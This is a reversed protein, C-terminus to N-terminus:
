PCLVGQLLCKRHHVCGLVCYAIIRRRHFRPMHEGPRLFVVDLLRRGPAAHVQPVAVLAQDHGHAQFFLQFKVIHEELDTELLDFHAEGRGTLGLIFEQAFQDVLFADGVIHRHLYQGLAAVMDDALSELSDPARRPGDDVKVVGGAHGLPLLHEFLGFLLDLLDGHVAGSQDLLEALFVLAVEQELVAGFTEGAGLRLVRHFDAVGHQVHHLGGRVAGHDDVQRDRHFHAHGMDVGILDFPAGVMQFVPVADDEGGMGVIVAAAAHGVGLQGYQGPGLAHLAAQEAVALAGAIHVGDGQGHVHVAVAHVGVQIEGVHGGDAFHVLTDGAHVDILARRVRAAENKRREAAAMLVRDGLAHGPALLAAFVAPGAGVDGDVGVVDAARVIRVNDADIGLAALAADAKQQLLVVAVVRRGAHPLIQAVTDLVDAVVLVAFEADLFHKVDKFLAIQVVGRRQVDGLRVEDLLAAAFLDGGVHGQPDLALGDLAAGGAVAAQVGDGGGDLLLGAHVERQHM